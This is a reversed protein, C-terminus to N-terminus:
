RCHHCFGRLFHGHYVGQVMSKGAKAQNTLTLSDQSAFVEKRYRACRAKCLENPFKKKQLELGPVKTMAQLLHFKAFRKLHWTLGTIFVRQLKRSTPRHAHSGDISPNQKQTMQTTAKPFSIKM